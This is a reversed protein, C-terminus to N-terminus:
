NTDQEYAELDFMTWDFDGIPNNMFTFAALPGSVPESEHQRTVQHQAPEINQAVGPPPQVSSSAKPSKNPNVLM